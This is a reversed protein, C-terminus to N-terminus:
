EDFATDRFEGDLETYLREISSFAKPNEYCKEWVCKEPEFRETMYACRVADPAFIIIRYLGRDFYKVEVVNEYANLGDTRNAKAISRALRAVCHNYQIRSSASVRWLWVSGFISLIEAFIFVEFATNDSETFEGFPKIGVLLICWGINLLILLSLIIAFTLSLKYKKHFTKRNKEELLPDLREERRSLEHRLYECLEKANKLSSVRIIKDEDTILRLTKGKNEADFIKIISLTFEKKLGSKIIVNKTTIELSAGRNYLFLLVGVGVLLVGSVCLCIGLIGSAVSKPFEECAWILFRIAIAAGFIWCLFALCIKGFRNVFKGDM